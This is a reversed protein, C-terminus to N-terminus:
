AQFATATLGRDLVLFYWYSIGFSTSGSEYQTRGLAVDM